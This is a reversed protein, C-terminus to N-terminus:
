PRRVRRRVPARSTSSTRTPSRPSPIARPKEAGATLGSSITRAIERPTFPHTAPKQAVEYAVRELHAVVENHDLVGGAVLQGLSFAARNLASNRYGEAAAALQALERELAAQGYRAAPGPGRNASPVVPPRMAPQTTRDREAVLALLWDPAPAPRVRGTWRYRDGSVHRSPPVVIYGGDGRVDIGPVLGTRNAVESGPHAFLLQRGGSGTRQECTAPLRDHDTQLRDLSKPGDPLDVDVVVLGSAAGTTAGLNATPWRSWWTRIRDPDTSADKLGHRTRPHKGPSGCAERCSCGIADVGHLPLVPWGHEGYKVAAEVLRRREREVQSAPEVTM